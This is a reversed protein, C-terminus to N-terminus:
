ARVERDILFAEDEVAEEGRPSRSWICLVAALIVFPPFLLNGGGLQFNVFVFLSVVAIERRWLTAVFFALFSALGLLGYDVFLKLAPNGGGPMYFSAREMAGPGLGILSRTEGWMAAIVDFQTMYRAHASTGSYGLEGARGTLSAFQAPFALASVLALLLALASFALIRPADRHDVLVYIMCAIALALLGTGAYTFLYAVGYVPMFRWDRRIFFDVLVGLALLQSFTSPEVLFFGNSRLLTSGYALIPHYNYLPEVLVPKLAPVALMFSFIRIGVFQALYQAIGLVACLRVYFVFIDSARSGDFRDGPQITLGVYLILLSGLSAISIGSVRPDPADLAVLTALLGVIAFVAFLALSLPRFVARGSALMWVALMLFLPLCLFLPSGGLYVCFRQLCICGILAAHLFIASAGRDARDAQGATEAREDVFAEDWWRDPVLALRHRPAIM